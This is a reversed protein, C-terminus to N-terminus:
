GRGSGREGPSKMTGAFESRAHIVAECLFRYGAGRRRACNRCPQSTSWPSCWPRDSPRHVLPGGSPTAAWPVVSGYGFRMVLDTQIAVRGREGIVLRVLNSHKAGVDGRRPPM